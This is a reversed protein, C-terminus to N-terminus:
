DFCDGVHNIMIEVGLPTKYDEIRTTDGPGEPNKGGQNNQRKHSSNTFITMNGKKTTKTLKYGIVEQETWTYTVPKGNLRTPLNEITATWNNQASLEVTQKDSTVDNSLTMVITKPRIKVSVSTVEPTYNNRINYGYIEAEYWDIPDETITYDIKEKRNDRLRQLGTFTTRWNNEESLQASAIEVGDAFLHVTISGPRNGDQNNNDNWTKIVPIDLPSDDPFFPEWPDIAFLKEIILKGTVKTNRIM